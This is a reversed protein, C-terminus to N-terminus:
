DELIHAKPWHSPKASVFVQEVNRVVRTRIRFCGLHCSLVSKWLKKESSGMHMM